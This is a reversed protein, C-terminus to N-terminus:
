NQNQIWQSVIYSTGWFLLQLSITVLQFKLIRVPGLQRSHRQKKARGDDARTEKQLFMCPFLTVVRVNYCICSNGKERGNKAPTLWGPQNSCEWQAQQGLHCEMRSSFETDTFDPCIINLLYILLMQSIIQVRRFFLRVSIGPIKTLM